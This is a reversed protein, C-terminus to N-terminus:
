VLCFDAGGGLASSSGSILRIRRDNLWRWHGTLVGLRLRGVELPEIPGFPSCVRGSHLSGSELLMMGRITLADPATSLPAWCCGWQILSFRANVAKRSAGMGDGKTLLELPKSRSLISVLPVPSGTAARKDDCNRLSRNLTEWTGDAEWRRFYTYVTQWRPSTTPCCDGLAAQACCTARTSWKWSTPQELADAPNLQLCCRASYNGSASPQTQTTPNDHCKSTPLM